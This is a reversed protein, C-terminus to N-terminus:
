GGFVVWLGGAVLAVLLLLGAFWSSREGPAAHGLPTGSRALHRDVVDKAEKLGLGHESRVIRIADILRGGALAARAAPSLEPDDRHPAAPAGAGTRAQEAEVWAKAEALGLGCTERVIKIAEILRGADIAARAADPLERGPGSM